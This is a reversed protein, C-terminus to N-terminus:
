GIMYEKEEFRIGFAELETLIPQYIDQHIPLVVGKHKIKGLMLLKTAIGLPLGVTMAMATEEQNKGEIAMASVIMKDEAGNNYKFEHQMIIMDKDQPDMTWKEELLKQLIQAPTANKLGIKRDDFIGLWKLKEIVVPDESNHCYEQLKIEVPVNPEYKLFANIFQRYTMNESDELVYTDETLGLRVFVNWAKAFGPRRITGRYMSPINKLGYIERYKLSDRNPYVEFDGYNLIKRALTRDFLRHYPIYKYRGNHIFQSVGNGALVVNRPNWTFKYNWPNNDYEPAVLGGTFSYFSSLVGGDKQIRNIINMASMHDIGPDLGLEMMIPIKAKVAKEELAKIEDTAYSATLMPKRLDICKDAVLHHMRAPLMSIVIDAEAITRWSEMDDNIDFVVASGNPHGNVKRRATKEDIDGVTIQWNYKTANELLYNILSNTSLGAGLILINKM